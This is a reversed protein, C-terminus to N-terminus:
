DQGRFEAYLLPNEQVRVTDLTCGGDLRPVIRRWIDVCLMEGTPLATGDAFEAIEANIHKGGFREVVEERLIRDLQPLDVIMGTVPDPTGRVTVACQYAHEHTRSTSGFAEANREPSWDPRFYHHAATFAVVRTLTCVAM